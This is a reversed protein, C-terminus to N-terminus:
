VVANAARDVFTEEDLFVAPQLEKVFDAYTYPPAIDSREAAAPATCFSDWYRAAGVFHKPLLTSRITWCEYGDIWRGDTWPEVVDEFTSTAIRLANEVEPWAFEVAARNIKDDIVVSSVCLRAIYVAGSNSAIATQRFFIDLLHAPLQEWLVCCQRWLQAAQKWAPVSEQADASKTAEYADKVADLLARLFPLGSRVIDPANLQIFHVGSFTAITTRMESVINRRCRDTMLDNPFTFHSLLADVFDDNSAHPLIVSIEYVGILQLRWALFADVLDMTALDDAEITLVISGKVASKVNAKAEPRVLMQIIDTYRAVALAEHTNIIIIVQNPRMVVVVPEQEINVAPLADSGDGVPNNHDLRLEEWNGVPLREALARLKDEHIGGNALWRKLATLSVKAIKTCFAQLDKDSDASYGADNIIQRLKDGNVHHGKGM